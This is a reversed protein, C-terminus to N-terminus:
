KFLVLKDGFLAHQRSNVAFIDLLQYAYEKEVVEVSVFAIVLGAEEIELQWICDNLAELNMGYHDPFDLQGSIDKHIVSKNTWGSCDIKIVKFNEKIFWQIDEKLFDTNM